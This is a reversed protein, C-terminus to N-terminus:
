SSPPGRLTHHSLTTFYLIKPYDWFRQKEFNTHWIFQNDINVILASNQLIKTKLNLTKVAGIVYKSTRENSSHQFHEFIHGLDFHSHEVQVVYNTNTVYTSHLEDIHPVVDHGIM